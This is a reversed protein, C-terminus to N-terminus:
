TELFKPFPEIKNIVKFLFLEFSFQEVKTLFSCNWFPVTRDQLPVTGFFFSFQEM